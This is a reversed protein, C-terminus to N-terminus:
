DSFRASKLRKKIFSTLNLKIFTIKLAKGM